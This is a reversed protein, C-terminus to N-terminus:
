DALHRPNVPWPQPRLQERRQNAREYRAAWSPLAHSEAARALHPSIHEVRSSKLSDHQPKSQFLQTATQTRSDTAPETKTTHVSGCMTPNSREPPPPASLAVNPPPPPPPTTM